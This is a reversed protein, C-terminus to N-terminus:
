RGSPSSNDDASKASKRLYRALRIMEDHDKKARRDSPDDLIWEGNLTQSDFLGRAYETLIEASRRLRESSGRLRPAAHALNAITSVLRRIELPLDDCLGRLQVARREIEDLYTDASM